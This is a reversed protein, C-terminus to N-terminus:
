NHRNREKAKLQLRLPTPAAALDENQVLIGEPINLHMPTFNWIAEVGSQVLADCAEQAHAAPVTIIGMRVDQSRCFEALQSMHYIPKSGPGSVEPPDIDFGALIHLGAKEFGGYGLLAQGLRGAGVLVSRTISNYDLVTEINEILAQRSHGVKCRGGDSVKALDKRVLVEGLGLANGLTKASINASSDEPMSKLYNLYVPLRRLLAKSMKKPEVIERRTNFGPVNYGDDDVWPPLM